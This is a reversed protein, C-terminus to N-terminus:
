DAKYTAGQAQSGLQNQQCASDGGENADCLVDFLYCMLLLTDRTVILMSMAMLNDIVCASAM